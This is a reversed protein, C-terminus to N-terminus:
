WLTSKNLDSLDVVFDRRWVRLTARVSPSRHASKKFRFAWRLALHCSHLPIVTLRPAHCSPAASRHCRRQTAHHSPRIQTDLRIAWTLAAGISLAFAIEWKHDLTIKTRAQKTQSINCTKQQSYCGGGIGGSNQPTGRPSSRRHQPESSHPGFHPFHPRMRLCKRVHIPFGTPIINNVNKQKNELRCAIVLHPIAEGQTQIHDIRIAM